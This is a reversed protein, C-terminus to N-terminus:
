QPHPFFASLRRMVVIELSIQRTLSREKRESGPYRKWHAFITPARLWFCLTCYRSSEPQLFFVELDLLLSSLNVYDM